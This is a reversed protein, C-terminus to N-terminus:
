IAQLHETDLRLDFVSIPVELEGFKVMYTESNLQKTIDGTSNLIHEVLEINESNAILEVTDGVAFSNINSPRYSVEILNNTM